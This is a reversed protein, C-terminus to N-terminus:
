LSINIKAAYCQSSDSINEKTIVDINEGKKLDRWSAKKQEAKLIRKNKTPVFITKRIQTQDNLYVKILKKTKTEQLLLYKKPSSLETKQITGYVDYTPIIKTPQISSTVVQRSKTALPKTSSHHRPTQSLNQFLLYGAVLLGLFLVVGFIAAIKKSM